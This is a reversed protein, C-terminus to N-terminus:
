KDYVINPTVHGNRGKVQNVGLNCAPDLGSAHTEAFSAMCGSRYDTCCPSMMYMSHGSSETIRSAEKICSRGKSPPMAVALEIVGEGTMRIGM